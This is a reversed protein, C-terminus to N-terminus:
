KQTILINKGQLRYQVPAIFCLMNMVETVQKRKSFTFNYRTADTISPDIAVEVQYLASLKNAITRLNAASLTINGYRWNTYLDPNVQQVTLKNHAFHAMQGPAMVALDKGLSDSIAIKGRVLIAEAGKEKSWAQVNFATGLVKIHITSTQIIFPHAPDHTVDFYAEGELQVMRKGGYFQNPYIIKSNSNLWVKTGDNLVVLKSSDTHSVSETIMTLKSGAEKTLPLFLWTMAAVGIFIAAYKVWRMNIKQVRPQSHQEINANLTARAKDLQEGSGFFEIRSAYWLVKTEYFQIRNEESAQLWAEFENKEEPTCTNQLYRIMIQEDM